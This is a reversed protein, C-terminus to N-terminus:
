KILLQSADLLAYSRDQKQRLFYFPTSSKLTGFSMLLKLFSAPIEKTSSSVLLRLPMLIYRLKSSRILPLSQLELFGLGSVRTLPKELSVAVSGQGLYTPFPHSTLKIAGWFM